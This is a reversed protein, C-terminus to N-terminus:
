SRLAPRWRLHTGLGPNQKPGSRGLATQRGHLVPARLGARCRTRPHSSRAIRGDPRGEDSDFSPWLSGLGGARVVVGWGRCACSCSDGGLSAFMADFDIVGSLTENSVVVNAPHLDGHLRVPPGEREPAAVADDWVARADAAIDGPDVAQM